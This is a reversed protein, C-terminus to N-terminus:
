RPQLGPQMSQELRELFERLEEPKQVVAPPPGLRVGLTQMAQLVAISARLPDIVGIGLKARLEDAFPHFGFSMCGLVIAEAGRNRLREGAKLLQETTRGVDEFIDGIPVDIAEVGV